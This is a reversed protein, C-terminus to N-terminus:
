AKLIVGYEEFDMKIVEVQYTIILEGLKKLYRKYTKVYGPKKEFNALISNYHDKFLEFSVDTVPYGIDGENLAQICENLFEAPFRSSILKEEFEDLFLEYQSSAPGELNGLNKSANNMTQSRIIFYCRHESMMVNSYM